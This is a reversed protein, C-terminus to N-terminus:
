RSALRFFSGEARVSTATAHELSGVKRLAPALLKHASSEDLLRTMGDLNTLLSWPLTRPSTTNGEM